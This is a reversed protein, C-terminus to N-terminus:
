ARWRRFGAPAPDEIESVGDELSAVMDKGSLQFTALTNQFPLVTLVDGM